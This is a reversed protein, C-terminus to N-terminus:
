DQLVCGEAFMFLLVHLFCYRFHKQRNTQLAEDCLASNCFIMAHDGIHQVMKEIKEPHWCDDQDCFAIYEGSALSCGKEFNKIFGLNNENVFVKINKYSVSYEKLISVTDDTSGDDVAIIEISSYTQNVLSELQEKLFTAGNYTGLVISVLPYNIQPFNM